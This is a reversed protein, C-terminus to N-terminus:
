KLYTFIFHTVKGLNSPLTLLLIQIWDWKEGQQEEHWESWLSLACDSKQQCPLQKTQKCLLSRKLEKGRVLTVGLQPMVTGAFRRQNRKIVEKKKLKLFLYSMKPNGQHSLHFLIQWCHPLGPNSGQTPFVGQLLTHCSVGTNKCSSDWPHLLRAPQLEHPRLSNSMVSRSLM